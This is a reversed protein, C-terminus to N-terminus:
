RGGRIVVATNDKPCRSVAILAFCDGTVAADAAIVLQSKDGPTLPEIEHVHGCLDWLEMPIFPSESGTWENLHHRRFADVPQSAAQDGYYRTAQGPGKHPEPPQNCLGCLSKKDDWDGKYDHQWPMRRANEGTDWYMIIGSEENHWVPILVDPDGKTEWWGDVLDQFTQGPVDERAGVSALEGATLQRGSKGNSYLNWLLESSGDDFGAYTEVLRISDQITPAPTMEEWFRIAEKTDFGWLETWISLASAGGAEGKADVSVPRIRSGSMYCTMSKGRVRWRGPLEERNPNYGPTLEISQRIDRYEREMAQGLDNGCCSIDGYRTQVEAMYRGIVSGVATKGSKKVTSYVYTQAPFRNDERRTFMYRLLGIQHPLFQIPRMTAAIFYHRQAWDVIDSLYLTQGEDETNKRAALETLTHALIQEIYGPSVRVAM